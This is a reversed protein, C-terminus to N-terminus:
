THERISVHASTHQHISAYTSTHQRTSAHAPTDQRISVYAPTHQRIIVYITPSMGSESSARRAASSTRMSALLSKTSVSAPSTHQRISVFGSTHQRISVYRSTHQRISVYASTHQRISVYPPTRATQRSSESAPARNHIHRCVFIHTRMSYTYRRM